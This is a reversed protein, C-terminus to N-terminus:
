KSEFELSAPMGYHVPGFTNDNKCKQPDKDTCFLSKEQDYNEGCNGKVLKFYNM